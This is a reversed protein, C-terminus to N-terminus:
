MKPREGSRQPPTTRASSLLFFLKEAGNLEYHRWCFSRFLDFLRLTSTKRVSKKPCSVEKIVVNATSSFGIINQDRRHLWQNDEWIEEHSALSLLHNSTMQCFRLINSYHLVTYKKVGLLWWFFSVWNEM